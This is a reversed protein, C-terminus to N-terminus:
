TRTSGDSDGEDLPNVLLFPKKRPTGFTVVVVGLDNVGSCGFLKCVQERIDQGDGILEIEVKV